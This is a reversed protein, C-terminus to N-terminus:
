SLSHIAQDLVLTQDTFKCRDEPEKRRGGRQKGAEGAGKLCIM